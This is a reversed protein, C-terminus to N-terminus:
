WSSGEQLYTPVAPPSFFFFIKKNHNYNVSEYYNVLTGNVTVTNLIHDLKHKINDPIDSFKNNSAGRNSM